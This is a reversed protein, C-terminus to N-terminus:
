VLTRAYLVARSLEAGDLRTERIRIVTGDGNADLEIEVYSPADEGEAPTWFFTWRRGPECEDDVRVHSGDDIVGPLEEWVEEPTGPLEAEREVSLPGEDSNCSM